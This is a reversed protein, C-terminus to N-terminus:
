RNLYSTLSMNKVYMTHSFTGITEWGMNMGNLCLGDLSGAKVYGDGLGHRLMDDLYPRLDIEIHRWEGNPEPAGNSWLSKGPYAYKSGILYIMAGSADAKGSHEAPEDFM